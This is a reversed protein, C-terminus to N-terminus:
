CSVAATLEAILDARVERHAHFAKSALKLLPRVIPGRIDGPLAAVAAAAKRTYFRIAPQTTAEMAREALAAPLDTRTTTRQLQDFDDRVRDLTLHSQRIRLDLLCEATAQLELRGNLKR